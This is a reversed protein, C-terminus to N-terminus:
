YHNCFYFLIFERIPETPHIDVSTVTGEHGPLRYQIQRTNTDWVYVFRDASGSAIRQGDKSWACNLLYKEFGHSHGLIGFCIFICIEKM